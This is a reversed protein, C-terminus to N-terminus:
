VSAKMKGSKLFVGMAQGIRISVICDAQSQMCKYQFQPLVAVNLRCCTKSRTRILETIIGKIMWVGGAAIGTTGANGTGVATQWTFGHFNMRQILLGVITKMDKINAAAQACKTQIDYLSEPFNETQWLDPIASGATNRLDIKKKLIRIHYLHIDIKLIQKEKTYTFHISIYVKSILLMLLLIVVAICGTLIWILM